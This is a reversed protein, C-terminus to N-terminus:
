LRPPNSGGAPPDNEPEFPNRAKPQDKNDGQATWDLGGGEYNPPKTESPPPGPPPGYAPYASYPGQAPTGPGGYPPAGGYPATPYQGYTPYPMPGSANYPPAYQPPYFDARATAPARFVNQVSTPDLLQRYFGFAVSAFLTALLTTALFAVIESWSGREWSRRCWLDASERDLRGSSIPGWFGNVKKTFHIVVRALGVGAMLVIALVSLWAFIRTPGLKQTAASFIGFAQIVAIFMYLTGLVIALIKLTTSNETSRPNSTRLDPNASFLTWIGALICVVIVVPRLSRKYVRTVFAYSPPPGQPPPLRSSEM